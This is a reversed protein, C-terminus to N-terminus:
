NQSHFIMAAYQDIQAQTQHDWRSDGRIPQVLVDAFSKLLTDVNKVMGISLVKWNYRITCVNDYRIRSWKNLTQDNDMRVSIAERYLGLRVEEDHSWQGQAEDFIIAHQLIECRSLGRKLVGKQKNSYVPSNATLGRHATHLHLRARGPEFFQFKKVEFGHPRGPQRVVSSKDGGYTNSSQTTSRRRRLAQASSSGSVQGEGEISTDITQLNSLSSPEHDELSTTAFAADIDDLTDKPDQTPLSAM